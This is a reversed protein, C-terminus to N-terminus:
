KHCPVEKNTNAPPLPTRLDVVLTFKNNTEVTEAVANDPDVAVTVKLVRNLYRNDPDIFTDIWDGPQGLQSFGWDRSRGVDTTLRLKNAPMATGTASTWGITFWMDVDWTGNSGSRLFCHGGNLPGVTFDGAPPKNFTASVTKNADMVVTCGQNGACAGGWSVFKADTDPQATLTISQGKDVDTKCTPPCAIGTGTVKGHSPTTVTLRVKPVPSVQVTASAMAQQDDPMTAQVSVQYTRAATWKHTVTAGSGQQGDGFDWHASRPTVGDTTDVRLTVDENATPNAKSLTIRLVPKVPPPNDSPPDLPPPNGQQPPPNGQQPPPNGQQPPPNQIPPPQQQDPPQQSPPQQSPPPESPPVPQTPPNPQPQVPAPDGPQQVLGKRPDAPDYKAARLVSGDFQIVGARESGPDNFFVKGDRTLLQFRTSPTLVQTRQAAKTTLDVIWVQGTTYDPVFLRNDAEIAAGLTSGGTLPISTDCKSAKLDCITLVGRSAVVYVRQSYPSGSIQVPDGPRLEMDLTNVVEGSDSDITVAKRDDTNVIVPNGGALSLVSQGPKTVGRHTTRDAGAIRTLDGTNRDVIWLRGSDDVAAAGANIEAGISFLDGRLALTRPDVVALVGRKTDMTYLDTSTAFAALGARADPVPAATATMAFTAGDVRRVTGATRDIAYANSGQQVVDLLNNAAAVQVQAMVETSSGDLLTVQGVKTSPLWAAGTLMQVSHAPTGDDIGLLTVAALSVAAAGAAAIRPWYRGAASLNKRM